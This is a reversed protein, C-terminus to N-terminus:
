GRGHIPCLGPRLDARYADCLCIAEDDVAARVPTDQLVTRSAYYTRRTADPIVPVEGSHDVNAYGFGTYNGTAHLIQELLSAAGLRFAQEPTLAKGGLTLALTSPATALRTNTWELVQSVRVTKTSM